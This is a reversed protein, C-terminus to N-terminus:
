KRRAKQQEKAKQELNQMMRQSWSSGGKKKTKKVLEIEGSDKTLFRQQLISLINFILYYLNLGSPFSNFLLWFVVPLIYVMTKQRPDQITQKQQLFMTVAMLLALGSFYELGVLPLKFPLRLIIDPSSLDNIWWVFPEGRLEFTSRFITFLAYLIPMQLLLPLCGGAPNIGYDSYLKMMESSQKSQDDAYKEKLENMKPQLARMKAMSEMQGKTLPYLLIKLIIS